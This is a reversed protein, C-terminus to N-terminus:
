NYDVAVAAYRALNSWNSLARYAEHVTIYKDHQDDEIGHNINSRQLAHFHMHLCSFDDAAPLDLTVVL